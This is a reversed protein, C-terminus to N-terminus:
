FGFGLTKCDHSFVEVLNGVEPSGEIHAIAGSFIWPHFRSVSEDRGARLTIHLPSPVPNM